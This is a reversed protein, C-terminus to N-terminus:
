MGLLSLVPNGAKTEATPASAGPRPSPSLRPASTQQPEAQKPVATSRRFGSEELQSLTQKIQQNVTMSARKALISMIDDDTFTYYKSKESEPVQPFRERRVFLKGNRKTKGSNIFATQESDIWKSLKTHMPDNPNYDTLENAIDYFADIMGYADGLVRDVIKAELGHTKNYNPNNRFLDMVEKPMANSILKRKESKQQKALPENRLAKIERQIQEQQPKLKELARAEADSTIKREKVLQLDFKPQNMSLFRKYEEDSAFDADPDEQLKKNLYDSHKNFFDLYQKHKGEYGDINDSAWKALHYREQEDKNLNSLNEKVEPTSKPPSSQTFEPDIVRKKRRVKKKPEADAVPAEEVETTDEQAEEETPDGEDYEIRDLANLLSSPAVVEEEPEPEPEDDEVAKFLADFIPNGSEESVQDSVEESQAEEISTEEIAEEVQEESM